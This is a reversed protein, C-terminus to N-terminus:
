LHSGANNTMPQSKTNTALLRYSLLLALVCGCNLWLWGGIGWHKLIPFGALLLIALQAIVFVLKNAQLGLAILIVGGGTECFRLFLLLGFVFMFGSLHEYRAGYLVSVLLEPRISLVVFGGFGILAFALFSRTAEVSFGSNERHRAALSPLLVQALVPAMRSAGQVLKMGAQYVGVAEVGLAMKILLTDLQSYIIGVGVEVGYAWSSKMVGSFTNLPAIRIVGIKRQAAARTIWMGAARSAFFALAATEKSPFIWVLVSIFVLHALATVASVIVEDRFLSAIRFGLTYHEVFSESVQAGFFAFYLVRSEPPIWFVGILSLGFVLATLCIKATLVESMVRHAHDPAAGFSRLVMPSFGFGVPITVIMAVALWVAIAGFESPGLQRALVVFVLMGSGLRVINGSLALLFNAATKM